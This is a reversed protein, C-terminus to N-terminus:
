STRSKFNLANKRYQTPTLGTESKFFSYFSSKSSFGCEYGLADISYPLSEASLMKKVAEVRHRNVWQFFNQGLERNLVETLQYKPIKLASSLSDMSLAPDLYPRKKEFYDVIKEKIAKRQEDNLVSGKYPRNAVTVAQPNFLKTLERQRLGYFSIIYLLLLLIATNIAETINLFSGSFIETLGAIPITFCFIVYFITIFLLWTLNENKEINSIEGKLAMRYRHVIIISLPIYVIWSLLNVTAFLMRYLYDPGQAFFEIPNFPTYKVFALAEFLVFPLLHLLLIPKLKFKDNTLTRVYIYISPNFLLFSATLLTGSFIRIYTATSLFLVAMLFLFITLVRDSISIKEKTIILIAAFLSQALGIWSACELMDM